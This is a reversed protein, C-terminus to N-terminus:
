EDKDSTRFEFRRKDPRHQFMEIAQSHFCPHLELWRWPKPRRRTRWWGMQEKLAKQDWIRGSQINLRLSRPRHAMILSPELTMLHDAHRSSVDGVAKGKPM